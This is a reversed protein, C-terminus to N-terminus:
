LVRYCPALKAGGAEAMAAAVKGPQEILDRLCLYLAAEQLRVVGLPAGPTAKGIFAPRTVVADGERGRYVLLLWHGAVSGFREKVLRYTATQTMALVVANGVVSALDQESTAADDSAKALLQGAAGLVDVGEWLGLRGAAEARLVELSHVGAVMKWGTSLDVAYFFADLGSVGPKADTEDLLRISWGPSFASVTREWFAREHGKM